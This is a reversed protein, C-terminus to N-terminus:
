ARFSPRAIWVLSLVVCLAGGWQLATMREGLFLAALGVTSAPESTTLLSVEWSKLKQLGALFLSMALVTGVISIMLVAFPDALFIDWARGPSRLSLISLTLGAFAQITATSVLPHVGRLFRSSVLIYLAYFVAAAVGFVLAEARYVAMEGWVLALLGVLALPLAWMKDRPIQEGFFVRAGLAVGVPYTFLLLVTLSSSLGTLATFFCFSFLAYGAVGLLACTLLQSLSLRLRPKGRILLFGFLLLSALVFRLSLLEGPRVGHSYLRKGFLGLSGFCLGSLISQFIGLLRQSM